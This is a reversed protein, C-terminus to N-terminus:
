LRSAAAPTHVAGASTSSWTKNRMFNFMFRFAFFDREEPNAVNLSAQTGV